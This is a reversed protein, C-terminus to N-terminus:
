FLRPPKKGQFMPFVLPHEDTLLMSTVFFAEMCNEQEKREEVKTPKGERGWGV